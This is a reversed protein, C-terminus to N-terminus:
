LKSCIDEPVDFTFDYNSQEILVNKKEYVKGDYIVRFDYSKGVSLSATKFKGDRVDGLTTYYNRYYWYPSTPDKYQVRFSPRFEYNPKSDCYGVAKFEVFLNDIASAPINIEKLSNRDCLTINNKKNFSGEGERYAAYSKYVLLDFAYSPTRYLRIKYDDYIRRWGMGKMYQNTGSYVARLYFRQSDEKSLGPANFKIQGCTSCCRGSWFDFNWWSLHTTKYSLELGNSGEIVTGETEYVWDGDQEDYSWVPIVDGAKILVGTEPNTVNEAVSMSVDIPQNFQKVEKGGISMDLSVFGATIFSGPALEGDAGIINESDFGGPFGEQAEEEEADFLGIDVKLESGNLVNGERDIFQTGAPLAVSIQSEQGEQPLVELAVENELTGNVLETSLENFSIGEPPNSKSVMAIDVSQIGADEEKNSLYISRRVDVYSDATILLDIKVPEDDVFANPHLGIAVIGEVLELDRKGSQQFVFQANDSTVEVKANNPVVGQDAIDYVKIFATETMLETDINIQISDTIKDLESKPNCAMILFASIIPLYFKLTKM